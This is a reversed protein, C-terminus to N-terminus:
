PDRLHLLLGSRITRLIWELGKPAEIKSVTQEPEFWLYYEYGIELIHRTCEVTSLVATTYLHRCHTPLGSVQKAPDWPLQTWGDPITTEDLTRCGGFMEAPGLRILQLSDFDPAEGLKRLKDQDKLDPMEFIEDHFPKYLYFQDDSTFLDADENGSQSCYFAIPQRNHLDWIRFDTTYHDCLVDDEDIYWDPPVNAFPWPYIDGPTPSTFDWQRIPQIVLKEGPTNLANRLGEVSWPTCIYQLPLDANQPCWILFRNRRGSLIYQESQPAPILCLHFELRNM